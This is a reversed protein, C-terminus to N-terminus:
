DLAFSERSYIQLAVDQVIDFIERREQRSISELSMKFIDASNRKLDQVIGQKAKASHNEQTLKIIKQRVSESWPLDLNQYLNNFFDVPNQSSEELTFVHWDSYKNAQTLLVKYVARWYASAALIPNAYERNIFDLDESFYDKILHPQDKIVDLKPWWNVRRLSVIFSVPHKVVIVPKVAFHINLYESLFSGTPDKIVAANHFFNLKALRLYFPGRGGVVTKTLKRLWPDKPRMKNKLTFDYSFISQTLHHFYQEEATDLSPRVYFCRRNMGPIGCGSSFPEHIYDVERPLSLVTGVFTSGSRVVGTVFIWNNINNVAIKVM